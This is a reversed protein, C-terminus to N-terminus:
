TAKKAEAVLSDPLKSWSAAMLDKFSSEVELDSIAPLHKENSSFFRWL